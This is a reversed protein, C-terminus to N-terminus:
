AMQARGPKEDVARLNRLLSIVIDQNPSKFLAAMSFVAALPDSAADKDACTMLFLCYAEFRVGNVQM